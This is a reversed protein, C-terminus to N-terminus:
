SFVIFFLVLSVFAALGPTIVTKRLDTRRLILIVISGILYLIVLYCGAKISGLAGTIMLTVAVLGIAPFVTEEFKRKALVALAAAISFIFILGM